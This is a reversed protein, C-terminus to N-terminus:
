DTGLRSVEIGTGRWERRLATVPVTDSM